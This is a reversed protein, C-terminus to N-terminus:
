LYYHLIGPPWYHSLNMQMSYLLVLEDRIYWGNWRSELGLLCCNSFLLQTASNSIYSLPLAGAQCTCPWLFFFFALAFGLGVYM